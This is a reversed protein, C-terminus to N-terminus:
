GGDQIEAQMGSKAPYMLHQTIPCVRKAAEKAAASAQFIWFRVDAAATLALMGVVLAAARAAAILRKM